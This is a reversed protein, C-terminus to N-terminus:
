YRKDGFCIKNNNHELCYKKNNTSATLIYKHKKM